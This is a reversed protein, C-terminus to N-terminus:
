SHPAEKTDALTGIAHQYDQAHSRDPPGALRPRSHIACFEDTCPIDRPRSAAIQNYVRRGLWAVGPLYAVLALPWFLPLWFALSRVGDFGATVRGTRSVLHMSRMCDAPTLSPHISRVDVAVLDVPEVVHDPDAATVLAM